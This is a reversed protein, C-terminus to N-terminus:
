STLIQFTPHIHHTRGLAGAKKKLLFSVFTFLDPVEELPSVQESAVIRFETAIATASVEGLHNGQQSWGRRTQELPACERALEKRVINRIVLIQMCSIFSQRSGVM